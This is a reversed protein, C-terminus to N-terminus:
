IIKHKEGKLDYLALYKIKHVFKFIQFRIIFLGYIKIYNFKIKIKIKEKFILKGKLNIM